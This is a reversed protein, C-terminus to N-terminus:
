ADWEEALMDAFDTGEDPPVAVRADRGQRRWRAAAARAAAEGPRAGTKPNVFDHDALVTVRRVEPPLELNMLGSTSLAAWAGIGTAQMAALCTEIGEGVLIHAAPRALKVAGGLWHGLGMKNPAVPAKGRGGPALWTRHVALPADDAGRTVLAVMAPWNTRSPRHELRDVRRLRRPLPALTIKRSRLYTEVETGATDHAARWLAMAFGFKAADDAPRPRTEKASAPRHDYGEVRLWEAAEERGAFGLERCVLDLVGGGIGAEYDYWTGKTLDVSLSGKAGFRLESRTSLNKNPEGLLHRAIPEIPPVVSMVFVAM